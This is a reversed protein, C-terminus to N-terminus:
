IQMKGFKERLVEVVQFSGEGVGQNFALLDQRLPFAVSPTLIDKVKSTLIIKITIILIVITIKITIIPIVITLILAFSPLIRSFAFNSKNADKCHEQQLTACDNM